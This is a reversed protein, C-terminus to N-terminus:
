LLGAGYRYRVRALRAVTTARKSRTPTARADTSPSRCASSATSRGASLPARRRVGVAPARTRCPACTQPCMSCPPPLAGVVSPLLHRGPPPSPPTCVLACEGRTHFRNANGGCGNYWMHACREGTWYYRTVAYTGRPLCEKDGEDRASRCHEPARTSPARVKYRREKGDVARTATPCEGEARGCVHLKRSVVNM